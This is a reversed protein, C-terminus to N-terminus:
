VTRSAVKMEAAIEGKVKIKGENAESLRKSRPKLYSQIKPPLRFFMKPSLYSVSARTDCVTDLPFECVNVRAFFNKDDVVGKLCDAQQLVKPNGACNSQQYAPNRMKFNPTLRSMRTKLPWNQWLLFM